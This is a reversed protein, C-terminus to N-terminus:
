RTGSLHVTTKDSAVERCNSGASCGEVSMSEGAALLQQFKSTLTDRMMSGGLVLALGLVGVILGYEISTAARNDRCFTQLM